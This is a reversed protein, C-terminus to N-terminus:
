PSAGGEVELYRASQDSEADFLAWAYTVAFVAASAITLSNLLRVDDNLAQRTAVDPTNSARESRGLRENWVLGAALASVLGVGFFTGAKAPRENYLQGWGPVLASRALAGYRWPVARKARKALLVYSYTGTPCDAEHTRVPRLGAAEVRETVTVVEEQLTQSDGDPGETQSFRATGSVTVKKQQAFRALARDYAMKQASAPGDPSVAAGLYFRFEANYLTDGGDVWPPLRSPNPCQANAPTGLASVLAACLVAAGAVRIRGVTM